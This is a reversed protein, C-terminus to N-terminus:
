NKERLMQKFVDLLYDDDDVVPDGEFLALWKKRWEKMDTGPPVRWAPGRGEVMKEELLGAKVAEEVLIMVEQEERTKKM